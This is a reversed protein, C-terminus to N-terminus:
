VLNAVMEPHSKTYKVFSRKSHRYDKPEDSPADIKLRIREKHVDENSGGCFLIRAGVAVKLSVLSFLKGAKEYYLQWESSSAGVMPLEWGLNCRKNIATIASQSKLTDEFPKSYEEIRWDVFKQSSAEHPLDRHFLETSVKELLGKRMRELYRRITTKSKSINRSIDSVAMGPSSLVYNNLIYVYDCGLNSVYSNVVEKFQTDDNRVSNYCDEPLERLDRSYIFVLMKMSKNKFHCLFPQGINLGHTSLLTQFTSYDPCELGKLKVLPIQSSKSQKRM